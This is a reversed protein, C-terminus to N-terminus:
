IRELIWICVVLNVFNAPMKFYKNKNCTLKAFRIPGSHFVDLMNSKYNEVCDLDFWCRLMGDSFPSFTLFLFLLWTKEDGNFLTNLDTNLWEDCYKTGSVVFNTFNKTWFKWCFLPALLILPVLHTTIAAIAHMNKWKLHVFYVSLLCIAFFLIQQVVGFFLGKKMTNPQMKQEPSCIEYREEPENTWGIVSPPIPKEQSKNECGARVDCDVLYM